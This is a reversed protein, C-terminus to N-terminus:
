EDEVLMGKWYFRGKMTTAVAAVTVGATLSTEGDGPVLPTEIERKGEATLNTTLAAAGHKALSGTIGYRVTPQTTLADLETCILGIEDLWFKCNAPLTITHDAVQKLDVEFGMLVVEVGCFRDFADEGGDDQRNIIPGCINTTQAVRATALSGIATSKINSATCNRGLAIAYNGSAENLTGMAVSIDGSAINYSGFGVSYDGSVTIELGMAAAYDGSAVQTAVSRVSQIDISNTGRVNGTLDGALFASGVWKAISWSLTSSSNYLCGDTNTAPWIYTANAGVIAPSEIAVYNSDDADSLRLEGCLRLTFNGPITLNGTTDLEFDSGNVLTSGSNIKFKYADNQDVGIVFRDADDCDFLVLPDTAGVDIEITNTSTLGAFTPTSAAKVAQDFWDALTPNGSLTITRDADGTTITLTHDATLDSGPAIILDHSANTDLLHLGTNPLTLTAMGSVAGGDTCIIISNQLTDGGAGDWRVIANDTSAGPGTVDGGSALDIINGASDKQKLHDSDGSDSYVTIYGAEPTDAAAGTAWLVEAM